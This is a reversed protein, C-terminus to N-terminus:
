AKPVMRGEKKDQVAARTGATIQTTKGRGSSGTREWVRKIEILFKLKVNGNKM